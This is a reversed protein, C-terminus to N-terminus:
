SPLSPPTSKSVCRLALQLCLQELLGLPPGWEASLWSLRALRNGEQSWCEWSTVSIEPFPKRSIQPKGRDTLKNLFSTHSRLDSLLVAPCSPLFFFAQPPVTTGTKGCHHRQAQGWTAAPCQHHAHAGAPCGPAFTYLWETSLSPMWKCLSFFLLNAKMKLKKTKNVIFSNLVNQKNPALIGLLRNRLLM